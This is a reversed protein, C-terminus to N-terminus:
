KMTTRSVPGVRVTCRRLLLIAEGVWENLHSAKCHLQDVHVLTPRNGMIILLRQAQGNSQHFLQFPPFIGLCKSSSVTVTQRRKTYVLSLVARSLRSIFTMIRHCRRVRIHSLLVTSLLLSFTIISRTDEVIAVVMRIQYQKSILCIERWQPIMKLLTEVTLPIPQVMTTMTYTEWVKVDRRNISSRTCPYLSNSYRGAIWNIFLTPILGMVVMIALELLPPHVHHLFIARLNPVM